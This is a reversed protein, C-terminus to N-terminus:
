YVERRTLRFVPDIKGQLGSDVILQNKHIKADGELGAVFWEVKGAQLRGATTWVFLSIM